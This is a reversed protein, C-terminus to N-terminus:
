SSEIETRIIDFQDETDDALAVIWAALQLADAKSMPGRPPNMILINDGQVGVLHKNQVIM